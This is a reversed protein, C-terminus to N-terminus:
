STRVSNITNRCRIEHFPAGFKESEVLLHRLPLLTTHTVHLQELMLRVLADAHKHSSVLSQLDASVVVTHKKLRIHSTNSGSKSLKGRMPAEHSGQFRCTM